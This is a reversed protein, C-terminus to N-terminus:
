PRLWPAPDVPRGDIRLEFYLYPGQLSGTEGVYGLKQGRLIEEGEEVMLASAHAYVSVAGHGHDVIATLGYGRLWAAYLVRGEFLAHFPTGAEAAFDIGPHPVRTKFRPHVVDGFGEVVRGDLPPDLLGRFRALDPRAGAPDLTRADVLSTLAEAAARLEGAAAERRARDERLEALLRGQRARSRELSARAASLEDRVADLRAREAELSRREETLRTEAVRFEALIRSDRSGLWAAYRLGGLYGEVDRGGIAIRAMRTPGERYLQAVRVELYDRREAQEAQLEAIRVNRREIGEHVTELRLEVEALRAEHLRLDSRVREIEGLVGREREALKANEAELREIQAQMSRLRTARDPGRDSEQAGASLALLVSAGLAAPLWRVGRTVIV